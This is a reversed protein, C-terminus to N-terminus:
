YKLLQPTLYVCAGALGAAGIALLGLYGCWAYARHALARDLDRPSGAAALVRVLRRGADDRFPGRGVGRVRRALLAITSGVSVDFTRREGLSPTDRGVEFVGDGADLVLRESGETRVTGCAIEFGLLSGGRAFRRRAWGSAVHVSLAGIVLPAGAAFLAQAGDSARGMLGLAIASALLAGSAARVRWTAPWVRAWDVWAGLMVPMAALAFPARVTGALEYRMQFAAYAVAVSLAGGVLTLLPILRLGRFLRKM